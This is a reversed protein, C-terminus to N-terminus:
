VPIKLNGQFMTLKNNVINNMLASGWTATHPLLFLQPSHIYPIYKYVTAYIFYVTVSCVVTVTRSKLVYGACSGFPFRISVPIIRKKIIKKIFTIELFLSFSCKYAPDLCNEVCLVTTQRSGDTWSDKDPSFSLYVVCMWVWPLGFFFYTCFFWCTVVLIIMVM